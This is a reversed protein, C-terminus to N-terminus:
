PLSPIEVGSGESIDPLYFNMDGSEIRISLRNDDAKPFELIFTFDESIYAENKTDMDKILITDLTGEPRLNYLMDAFAKFDKTTM